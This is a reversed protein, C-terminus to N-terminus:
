ASERDHVASFYRETIERASRPPSFLFGQMETYGAARITELQEQTEVGEATTAMGLSRSLSAVADVIANAGEQKALDSVFSRDLKIKDFPFSRLYSLSSYGTGFDDMAIRVGMDRLQHLVELTAETDSLLVAETIELELRRAAIGAEALASFVTPVLKDSRFQAPSLNVAVNLDAPWAAAQRCATRIVWEGLPVILGIEEALPIFEGPPIVGREPHHWRLLAEFGSLQGAELKMLPQYYLEFEGTELAKRLDLELERRAKMRADMEAEFFRHIGRGDSKARYLAMDANKLLQDADLGDDPAIAIGISADTVVQHGQLELPQKIVEGIRRALVTADHPLNDSIQVLAFEDGGLRAITDGERVSGRLREAVAKLLEDGVPHGLTDNVSKFRDLDLCLVAFGQGRKAQSLAQKIREQFLVRNPLDTLADHHAMHTVQEEMRQLETIDEHTAVWGGESMPRHAIAIVRGDTLEQVKMSPEGERVAVLREEIYHDPDDGAYIGSKVRHEIIERFPTGPQALERPLAYMDIYRDNCVVLREAADFMCLGQSMNALAVNFRENQNRLQENQKRLAEEANKRDTVDVVACQIASIGHWDVQKARFEVWIVSGDKKLCRVEYIEPAYEGKDRAAKYGRLRERDDPHILSALSELACFADPSEYGFMDALAQNAFLLRWDKHIFLGQISGEVLDRFQKESQELASRIKVETTRDTGTGRYGKFTGTEDFVPKGNIEIYKINGHALTAAYQFARIPRRNALDELHRRWMEDDASAGAFEQRTKGIIADPALGFHEFFRESLYTFRLEADMEWIWDGAVEAIDRFRQESERLRRAAQKRATVDFAVSVFQEPDEHGFGQPLKREIIWRYDQSPFRIRYEVESTDERGNCSKIYAHVLDRDRPHVCDLFQKVDSDRRFPDYRVGNALTVRGKADRAWLFTPALEKDTTFTTRPKNM